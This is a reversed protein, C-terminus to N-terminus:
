VKVHSQVHCKLIPTLVFLLFELSFIIDRNGPKRPHVRFKLLLDGGGGGM